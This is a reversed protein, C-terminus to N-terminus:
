AIHVGAILWTVAAHTLDYRKALMWQPRVVLTRSAGDLENRLLELSSPWHLIKLGTSLLYSLTPPLNLVKGPTCAAVATVVAADWIHYNCVCSLHIFDDGPCAYYLSTM